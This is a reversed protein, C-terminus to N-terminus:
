SRIFVIKQYGNRIFLLSCGLSWPQHEMEPLYILTEHTEKFMENSMKIYRIKCM